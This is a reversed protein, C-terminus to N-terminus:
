PTSGSRPVRIRGMLGEPALVFWAAGHLGALQFSKGRFKKHKEKHSTFNRIFRESYLWGMTPTKKGRFGVEGCNTDVKAEDGLGDPGGAMMFLWDM